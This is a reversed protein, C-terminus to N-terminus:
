GREIWGGGLVHSGDYMVCAQGPTIGSYSQALDVKARGNELATIEAEIHKHASRLKVSCKLSEGVNPAKALWNVEKIELTASKLDDKHGVIVDNTDPDIKIVYLPESSSIGIGRRQGITFNIIGEHRGLPTGDKFIINGSDLAGPRYKEIVKSYSGDPVFCIDQSDPKDAVNLGFHKALERTQSKNLGGIPFRLYELQERTTTFLFYSQDKTIEFGQHLEAEPGNEIRRVYHGTALCDANLDKAVKFLDRFKVRQNCRVCPIPTEGRLYSDAFDDIVSEKFINEYNLVYHPIGIKEAAQLADYIDQGACCAGKKGVTLGYDYLQLTVGIVEHGQHKLIAAVTSSDVGGSMAVVVKKPRDGIPTVLKLLESPM